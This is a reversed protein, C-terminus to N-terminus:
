TVITGHVDAEGGGCAGGQHHSCAPRGRRRRGGCLDLPGADRHSGLQPQRRPGGVLRGGEGREVVDERLEIPELRQQADPAVAAVDLTQVGCRPLMRDGDAGLRDLDQGGRALDAIQGLALEVDGEGRQRVEPFEVVILVVRNGRRVRDTLPQREDVVALDLEIGRRLVANMVRLPM